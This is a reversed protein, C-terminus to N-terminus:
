PKAAAEAAAVGAAFVGGLVTLVLINTISKHM